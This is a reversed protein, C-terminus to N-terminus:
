HRRFVVVLAAVVAAAAAALMVWVWPLASGTRDADAEADLATDPTAGAEDRSGDTEPSPTASPAPTASPTPTASPAPTTGPAPTSQAANGSQAAAGSTVSGQTVSGAASDSGNVAETEGATDTSGPAVPAPSQQAQGSGASGTDTGTDPKASPAPTSEPKTSPEPAPKTATSLVAATTGGADPQRSGMSRDAVQLSDALFVVDAEVDSGDASTLCISGLRASGNALLAERGALYVTLEGTADDYRYQQVGANLGDDFDFSVNVADSGANPTVAFSLQLATVDQAEDAPLQLRVAARAGDATLSVSRAASDDAYAPMAALCLATGVCLSAFLHKM